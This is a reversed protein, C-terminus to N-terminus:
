IKEKKCKENRCKILCIVGDAVAKIKETEGTDVAEGFASLKESIQVEIEEVAESSVPDSYCLAEYM